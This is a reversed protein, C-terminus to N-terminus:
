GALRITILRDFCYAMALGILPVMPVFYRALCSVLSMGALSVVAFAVLVRLEVPIARWRRAFPWTALGAAALFLANPALYFYTDLKQPTHSFPYSFLLRGLNAGWNRAYTAPRALAHRLGARWLVADREVAGMGALGALFRRHEPAVAAMAASNSPSHWDGLDDGQSAAMWYFALGGASSWYLPRGSVAYTHALYPTCLALATTHCLALTRMVPSRGALYLTGYLVIGVLITYGFVPKTLALLAMFGAAPIAQGLTRRQHRLLASLHYALGCALFIALSETMATALHRMMAPYLGLAVTSVTAACTSLYARAAANFYALAAFLLLANLLRVAEPPAGTAAFPALLLPYFPGVWLDLDPGATWRGDLLNSAYALYAREDGPPGPRAVLSVVAYLALFPLLRTAARM